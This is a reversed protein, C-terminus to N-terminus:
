EDTGPVDGANEAAPQLVVADSTDRTSRLVIRDGRIEVRFGGSVAAQVAEETAIQDESCDEFVDTDGVQIWATREVRGGRAVWDGTAQRCGTYQTFTGGSYDGIFTFTPTPVGDPVPRSGDGKEITVVEWTTGLLADAELPEDSRFTLLEPGGALVLTDDDTLEWSTATQLASFFADQADGTKTECGVDNAGFELLSWSGDAALDAEAFWDNCPSTGRLTGDERVSMTATSGSPFELDSQAVDLIWAGTPAPHGEPESQVDAVDADDPGSTASGGCGSLALVAVALLTFPSSTRM